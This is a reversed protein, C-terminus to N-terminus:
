KELTASAWAPTRSSSQRRDCTNKTRSYMRLAHRVGRSLIIFYHRPCGEGVHLRSPLKLHGIIVNLLLTQTDGASRKEASYQACSRQCPGDKHRDLGCSCITVLIAVSLWIWDGAADGRELGESNEDM